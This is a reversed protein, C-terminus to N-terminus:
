SRGGRSQYEMQGAPAPVSAGRNIGVHSVIADVFEDFSTCHPDNNLVLHPNAPTELKIDVGVVNSMMGKLAKKYIDKTDRSVLTELSVELSVECYQEFTARNFEQVEPHITSACCIVNIGQRDMLRCIGAIRLGNKRRDEPSYGLDNGLALRFDDGDILFLNPMGPKLRRYLAQGITSKGAGSPGCIWILM